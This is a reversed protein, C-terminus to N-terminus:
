HAKVYARSGNLGQEEGTFLVFRITRKLEVGSKMLARAAAIVAMSGTGDDTAGTGLDWSDLHGGIIVVEEPKESGRIEAVANYVEVEKGGLTSSIALEVEVPGADLLRWLQASNERSMFATPVSNAQYERGSATMNLLGWWKESGNLVAAVGEDVFFKTRAQRLGRQNEPNAPGNRRPLDLPITPQGWPTLLPSKPEIVEGPRGVVVIAGKLKGRYKELDAVTDAEIGVVRGRISGPTATSWGATVLTLEHVAPSVIRGNAPGRTWSNAITWPELHANLGLQRFQELTW